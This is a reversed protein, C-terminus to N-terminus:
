LKFVLNKKKTTTYNAIVSNKYLLQLFLFEKQKIKDKLEDIDWHEAMFSLLKLGREEIEKSGWITNECIERESYSGNKYAIFDEENKGNKKIDFCHNQFKSNKSQKFPSFKRFSSLFM